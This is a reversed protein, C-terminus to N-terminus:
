NYFPCSVCVCVLFGWPTGSMACRSSVSRSRAIHPYPTLLSLFFGRGGEVYAESRRDRLSEENLSYRHIYARKSRSLSHIHRSGGDRGMWLTHVYQIYVYTHIYTGAGTVHKNVYGAWSRRDTHGQAGAGRHTRCGLRM